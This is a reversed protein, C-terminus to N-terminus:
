YKKEDYLCDISNNPQKMEYRHVIVANERIKNNSNNNIAAQWKNNAFRVGPRLAVIDGHPLVRTSAELLHLVAQEQPVGCTPGKEVGVM